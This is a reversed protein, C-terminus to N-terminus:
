KHHINLIIYAILQMGNTKDNPTVNESEKSQSTVAVTEVSDVTDKEQVNISQENQITNTSTGATKEKAEEEFHLKSDKKLLTSNSLSQTDLKMQMSDEDVTNSKQSEAPINDSSKVEEDLSKQTAGEM